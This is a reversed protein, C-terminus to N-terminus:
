MDGNEIVRGLEAAILSLSPTSGEWIPCGLDDDMESFFLYGVTAGDLEVRYRESENQPRYIILDEIKGQNDIQYHYTEM